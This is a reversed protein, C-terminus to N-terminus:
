LRRWKDPDGNFPTPDGNFAVGQAFYQDAAKLDDLIGLFIQEQTDYEPRYLGEAGKNAQSYPTMYRNGNDAQLVQLSKVFSAVGKYSNEMITGKAEELMQEINPLIPLGGFDTALQTISHEWSDKM